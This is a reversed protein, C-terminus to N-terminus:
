EAAELTVVGDDGKTVTYGDVQEPKFNPDFVLGEPIMDHEFYPSRKLRMPKMDPTLFYASGASRSGLRGVQDPRAIDRLEQTVSTSGNKGSTTSVKAYYEKGLKESLYRQTTLDNNSFMITLGSNGQFTEWSDGYIEHLQPIDQSCLFLQVSFKAAEGAARKIRSMHGLTPFEDILFLTSHEPNPISMDQMADFAGDFLMRLWNRYTSGAGAPVIVYVSTNGDKLQKMSFTSSSLNDSMTLTNLFRLSTRFTQIVSGFEKAERSLCSAGYRAVAGGLGECHSMATWLPELDESQLLAYVQPLHMNESISRLGIYACCMALLEQASQTWYADKGSMEILSEALAFCKDMAQEDTDFDIELLPNWSATPVDTTGFPDLVIVNQGLVQQRYAATLDFNEGAPDFCIVSGKHHLLNPVIFSTGKGGRSGGVLLVHRDEVLTLKRKPIDLHPIAPAYSLFLGDEEGFHGLMLRAMIPDDTVSKKRDRVWARWTIWWVLFGRLADKGVRIIWLVLRKLMPVIKRALLLPLMAIGVVVLMTM